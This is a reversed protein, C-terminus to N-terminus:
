IRTNSDQKVKRAIGAVRFASMSINTHQQTTHGEQKLKSFNSAIHVPGTLVPGLSYRGLHPLQEVIRNSPEGTRRGTKTVMNMIKDESGTVFINAALYCDTKTRHRQLTVCRTWHEKGPEVPLAPADNSYCSVCMLSYKTRTSTNQSPSSRYQRINPASFESRKM